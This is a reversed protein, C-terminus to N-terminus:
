ETLQEPTVAMMREYYGLWRKGEKTTYYHKDSEIVLLGGSVMKKLYKKTLDWSLNAGFQIHTKRMGDKALRAIDAAIDLDNRRNNENM